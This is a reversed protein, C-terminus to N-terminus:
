SLLMVPAAIAHALSNKLLDKERQKECSSAGGYCQQLASVLYMCSLTSRTKSIPFQKKFSFCARRQSYTRKLWKVVEGNRFDTRDIGEKNIKASLESLDILQYCIEAKLFYSGVPFGLIAMLFIGCSFVEHQM